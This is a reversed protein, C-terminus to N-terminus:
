IRGESPVFVQIGNSDNFVANQPSQYVRFAVFCDGLSAAANLLLAILLLSGITQPLLLLLVLGGLTMSILPTLTMRLYQSRTLYDGPSLGALLYYYRFYYVPKKGMLQLTFGHLWEHFFMSGVFIILGLGISGWLPFTPTQFLSYPLGFALYLQYPVWLILLALGFPVLALFNAIFFLKWTPMDFQQFLKQYHVYGPPSTIEAM